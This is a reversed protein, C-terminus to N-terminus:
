IIKRGYKIVFWQFLSLLNLIGVPLLCVLQSYVLAVSANFWASGSVFGSKLDLARVVRGRQRWILTLYMGRKINMHNIVLILKRSVNFTLGIYFKM